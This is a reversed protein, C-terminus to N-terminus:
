VYKIRPDIYVYLIDVFLNMFVFVFAMFLVVGQVTPFDRAQISNVALRGIGPWSFIVEIIIAGALQTSLRLGAITVFPILVNKLAHKFIVKRETLGKAKATRIFDQNLVDIMNSRVIQSLEAIPLIALVIAPLILHQIVNKFALFNGSIISDLLYFNTYHKLNIYIDMRGGLPLVNLSISFFYMVLLGFWFAPIAMGLVALTTCSIDFTSNRRTASIVALIVATIIAFVTSIITLELTAPLRSIIEKTVSNGTTYSIGLDGKLIGILYSYFQVLIPRNLGLKERLEAVREPTAYSGLMMQSPDGPVLRLLFFTIISVGILVVIVMILRRIIYKLM